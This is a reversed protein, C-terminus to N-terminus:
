NMAGINLGKNGNRGNDGSGAVGYDEPAQGIEGVFSFSRILNFIEHSMQKLTLKQPLIKTRLADHKLKDFERQLYRDSDPLRYHKFFDKLPSQLHLSQTNQTAEDIERDEEFCTEIEDFIGRM